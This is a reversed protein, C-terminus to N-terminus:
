DDYRDDEEHRDDDDNTGEKEVELVKGTIKDIEIEYRGDKAQVIIEYKTKGDDEETTASIIKGSVQELAIQKAREMNIEPPSVEKAEVTQSNLNLLLSFIILLIFRLTNRM